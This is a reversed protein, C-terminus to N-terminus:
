RLRTDVAEAPLVTVDGRMLVLYNNRRFALNQPANGALTCAEDGVQLTAETQNVCVAEFARRAVTENEFRYIQCTLMTYTMQADILSVTDSEVITEQLQAPMVPSLEDLRQYRRGLDGPQCIANSLDPMRDARFILILGITLLALGIAVGALIKWSTAKMM